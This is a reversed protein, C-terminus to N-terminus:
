GTIEFVEIEKVQFHLSSTFLPDVTIVPYTEYNRGRDTWTEMNGNCNNSVNISSHFVPGWGSLCMLAKGKRQAKLPFRMAPINHPNKLTFLFSKLSDDSKPSDSSDWGVPTFGGFVNGQTDQIVVLTNEHCCCHSQFDEAGFGDRSGRWLLSLEKWSFEAFINPLDSVILSDLRVPSATILPVDDCMLWDAFTMQPPPSTPSAQSDDRHCAKWESLKAAFARFGFEDCLLSLGDVNADTLDVERDRLAALFDEFIAFPVSSRVAYPSPVLAPNKFLDCRSILRRLFLVFAGGPHVLITSNGIM